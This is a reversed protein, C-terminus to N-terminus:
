KGSQVGLSQGSTKTISFLDSTLNFTTLLPSPPPPLLPHPSFSSRNGLLFFLAAIHHDCGWHVTTHCCDGRRSRTSSLAAAKLPSIWTTTM